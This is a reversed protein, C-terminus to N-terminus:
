EFLIIRYEYMDLHYEVNFIWTRRNYQIVVNREMCVNEKMYAHLRRKFEATADHSEMVNTTNMTNTTNRKNTKKHKTGSSWDSLSMSDWFDTFTATQISFVESGPPHLFANTFETKVRDNKLHSSCSGMRSTSQTFHLLNMKKPIIPYNQPLPIDGGKSCICDLL